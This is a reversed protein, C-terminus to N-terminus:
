NIQHISWWLNLLRILHERSTSTVFRPPAPFLKRHSDRGQMSQAQSLTLLVFIQREAPVAVCSSACSWARGIWGILSSVKIIGRSSTHVNWCLTLVSCNLLPPIMWNSHSSYISTVHLLNANHKKIIVHLLCLCPANSSMFFFSFLARLLFFYYNFSVLHSCPFFICSELDNLTCGTKPSRHSLSQLHQLSYYRM